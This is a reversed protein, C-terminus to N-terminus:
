LLGRAHVQRWLKMQPRAPGGELSGPARVVPVQEIYIERLYPLHKRRSPTTVTNTNTASAGEIEIEVLPLPFKNDTGTTLRAGLVCTTTVALYVSIRTYPTYTCVAM